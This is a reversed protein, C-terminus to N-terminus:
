WMVSPLLYKRYEPPTQTFVFVFSIVSATAIVANQTMWLNFLKLGVPSQSAVIANEKVTGGFIFAFVSSSFLAVNFALYVYRGYIIYWNMASETIVDGMRLLAVLSHGFYAITVLCVIQSAAVFTTRMSPYAQNSRADVTM